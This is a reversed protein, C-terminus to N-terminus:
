PQRSRPNGFFAYHAGRRLVAEYRLDRRLQGDEALRVATIDPDIEAAQADQAGNKEEVILLVPPPEDSPFNRITAHLRPEPAADEVIIVRSIAAKEDISEAEATSEDPIAAMLEFAAQRGGGRAMPTAPLFAWAGAAAPLLDRAAEVLISSTRGGEGLVLKVASQVGELWGQRRHAPLSGIAARVHRRAPAAARAAAIGARLKVVEAEIEDASFDAAQAREELVSDILAAFDSPRSM